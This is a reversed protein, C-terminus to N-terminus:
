PGRLGSEASPNPRVLLRDDGAAGDPVLFGARLYFPMARAAPSLVLRAYGREDAAAVLAALLASGIGRNRCDERVFMNSVYGWRSDPRGPRPMRRYEFMSAMGVPAEGLTALWTTRRDGEAAMWAALREAFARDAGTGASWLARLSAIAAGDRAGATRLVVGPLESAM